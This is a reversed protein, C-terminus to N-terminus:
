LWKILLTVIGIDTIVKLFIPQIQLESTDSSTSPLVHFVSPPDDDASDNFGIFM